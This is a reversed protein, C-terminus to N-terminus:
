RHKATTYTGSDHRQSRLTLSIVSLGSVSMETTPSPFSLLLTGLRTPYNDAEGHGKLVELESGSSSVPREAGM